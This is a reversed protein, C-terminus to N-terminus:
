NGETWTFGTITVTQTANISINDLTLDGADSTVTVTGQMHQTVGDTSYLRFHGATGSADADTDAWVGALAKTGGSAAAMWDSPLQITSLVAGTDTDSINTPPAGARIMLIAGAGIATEVADLKANKVVDSIKIAM